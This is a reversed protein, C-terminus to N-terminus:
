VTINYSVTSAGAGRAVFGLRFTAVMVSAQELALRQTEITVQRKYGFVWYPAYIGLIRGLTGGANPVKGVNNALPMFSSVFVDVGYMNTVVGSSITANTRKVDDTKLAAIDLSASHTDGDIIFALNKFRTRFEQAFLKMTLRYDNEDLAGGDRSTSSGTVLAYKLFGDSALYYPKSLGTAPTGDILNINTNAGTATDGNIMLQEITEQAKEEVQARFQPLVNIFSDEDLVTTYSVAMGLWGPTLTKQGTGIRTTAIVPAPRNDSGLDANQSLTYVTPDAGETAVITSEAGKPVEVERMGKKILDQYIRVGRVKEWITRDYAVSVWEDGGGSATSTAIENAKTGKILSKIAQAQFPSDQKRLEAEARGAMIQLYEDSARSGYGWSKITKHGFMLDELSLHEYKMPESVSINHAAQVGSQVQSQPKASAVMNKVAEIAATQAARPATFTQLAKIVAQAVQEGQAKAEEPTAPPASETAGLQAVVQAVIQQKQTDDLQPASEGFAALLADLVSAVMAQMDMKLHGKVNLRTIIQSVNVAPARPAEKVTEPEELTLAHTAKLTSVVIRPEAPTPTLSGEVIPWKEIHGGAAIKVLHPLSGSSWGIVGKDVLRRIATVYKNHLDLQAEAWVGIEDPKLLDIDGIKLAELTDDLGHHYFTPRTPYLDLSLDTDPTFYENQLDKQSPSGWMVLYGGVRGEGVMKVAQGNAILKGNPILAELSEPTIDKGSMASMDVGARELVQMLRELETNITSVASAIDSANQKNLMAGVKLADPQLEADENM